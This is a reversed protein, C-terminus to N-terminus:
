AGALRSSMVWLLALACAAVALWFLFDEAFMPHKGYAPKM